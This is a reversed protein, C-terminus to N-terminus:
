GGDGPWPERNFAGCLSRVFKDPDEGEVTIRAVHARSARGLAYAAFITAIWAVGALVFAATM